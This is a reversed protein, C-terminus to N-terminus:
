LSMAVTDVDLRKKQHESLKSLARQLIRKLETELITVLLEISLSSLRQGPKLEARMMREVKGIIMGNITHESIKVPSKKRRPSGKKIPSHVSLHVSQSSEILNQSRASFEIDRELLTSRKERECLLSADALVRKARTHIYNDLYDTAKSSISHKGEAVVGWIRVIATKFSLPYKYTKQLGGTLQEPLPDPLSNPLPDPMLSTDISVASTAAEDRENKFISEDLGFYDM